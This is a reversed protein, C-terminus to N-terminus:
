QESELQPNLSVWM